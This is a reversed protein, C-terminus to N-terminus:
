AINTPIAETEERGPQHAGSRAMPHLRAEGYWVKHSVWLLLNLLLLLRFAAANNSLLGTELTWVEVAKYSAQSSLLRWVVLTFLTSGLRVWNWIYNWVLKLQIPNEAPIQLVCFGLEPKRRTCWRLKHASSTCAWDKLCQNIGQQGWHERMVGLLQSWSCLSTENNCKLQQWLSLHAESQPLLLSLFPTLM